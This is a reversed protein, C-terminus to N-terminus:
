IPRFLECAPCRGDKVAVAGKGREFCDGNEIRVFYVCARCIFDASAEM